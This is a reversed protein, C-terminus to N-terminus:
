LLLPILRSFKHIEKAKVFSESSEFGTLGCVDKEQQGVAVRHSRSGLDIGTAHANFIEMSIVDQEM